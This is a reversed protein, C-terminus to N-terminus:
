YLDCDPVPKLAITFDLKNCWRSKLKFTQHLTVSLIQKLNNEKHTSREQRETKARSLEVYNILM